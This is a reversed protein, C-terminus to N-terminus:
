KQGSGPLELLEAMRQLLRSPSMWMTLNKRAWVHAEAGFFGDKVRVDIPFREPIPPTGFRCGVSLLCFLVGILCWQRSHFKLM